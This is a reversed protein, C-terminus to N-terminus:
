QSRPVRTTNVCKDMTRGCKVDRMGCVCGFVESVSM